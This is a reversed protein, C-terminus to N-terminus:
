GPTSAKLFLTVVAGCLPLFIVLSLLLPFGVQSM